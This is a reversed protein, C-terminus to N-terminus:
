VQKHGYKGIGIESKLADFSVLKKLGVIDFLWKKFKDNENMEIYIENNKSEIVNIDNQELLLKIKNNLDKLSRLIEKKEIMNIRNENKEDM